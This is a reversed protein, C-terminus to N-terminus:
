KGGAVFNWDSASTCERHLRDLWTSRQDESTLARVEFPTPFEGEDWDAVSAGPQHRAIAHPCRAANARPQCHEDHLGRCKQHRSFHQQADLPAGLAAVGFAPLM